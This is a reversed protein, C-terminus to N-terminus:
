SLVMEPAEFFEKAAWWSALGITEQEADVLLLFGKQCAGQAPRGEYRLKKDLM